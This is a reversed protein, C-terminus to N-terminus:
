PAIVGARLDVPLPVGIPFCKLGLTNPQLPEAPPLNAVSMARAIGPNDATKAGNFLQM